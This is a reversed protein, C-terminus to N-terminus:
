LFLIPREGPGIGAQSVEEDTVVNLYFQRLHSVVPHPDAGKPCVISSVVFM